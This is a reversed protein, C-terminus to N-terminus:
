NINYKLRLWLKLSHIYLKCYIDTQGDKVNQTKSILALLPNIYMIKENSPPFNSIKSLTTTIHM